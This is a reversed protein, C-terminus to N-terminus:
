TVYDDTRQSDALRNARDYGARLHEPLANGMPPPQDFHAHALFYGIVGSLLFGAIAGFPGFVFEFLPAAVLSLPLAFVAGFIVYSVMVFLLLGLVLAIMWWLLFHAYILVAMFAAVVAIALMYPYAAAACMITWAATLIATRLLVKGLLPWRKQRTARGFDFM